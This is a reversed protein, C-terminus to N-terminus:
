SQVTGFFNSLSRQTRKQEAFTPLDDRPTVLSTSSLHELGGYESGTALTMFTYDAFPTDGLWNVYTQCIKSLDNHLRELDSHHQGSM